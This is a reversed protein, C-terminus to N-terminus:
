VTCAHTRVAESILKVSDELEMIRQKKHKM